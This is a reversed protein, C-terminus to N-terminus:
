LEPKLAAVISDLLKGRDLGRLDVTGAIATDRLPWYYAFAGWVGLARRIKSSASIGLAMAPLRGAKLGDKREQTRM